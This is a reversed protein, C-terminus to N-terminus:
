AGAKLTRAYDAWLDGATKGTWEKWVEPRYRGERMTANLKRILDADVSEVVYNLFAATTRYSDTYNARDPDPRPRLSKPEFRFWRIYDAIGEVLWGPNRRGGRSRGYQQVVHVLEHIVAGTAEGKRNALFWRGACRVRTGGTAAVGRMTRDFTVRVRRPAEFGDSPLAAVIRPYWAECAPILRETVWADLDPVDACDFTFEYKHDITCTHVGKPPPPPAHERGDDVDIEGFFTNGFPDDRETPRAALLLYRFTGLPRGADHRVAVAYQGGPRGREPRTDVSALRTWGAEAPDTGADPRAQFGEAKGDAAYLRYVQPGRTSPHWSYTRIQLVTVAKGLDVRLRGGDTGAGFFFSAGPEDPAAQGRGDKLVAPGAGNPDARGSLVEVTADNAADTRSPPPVKEFRFEATAERGTRHNVVTEVAAPAAATWLLGCTVVAASAFRRTM